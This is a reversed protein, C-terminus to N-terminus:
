KVDVFLKLDLSQKDVISEIGAIRLFHLFSSLSFYFSTLTQNFDKLCLNLDKLCLFILEFYQCILPLIPIRAM